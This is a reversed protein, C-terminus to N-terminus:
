GTDGGAVVPLVPSDTTAARADRLATQIETAPKPVEDKAILGKRFKEHKLVQEAREMVIDAVRAALKVRTGADYQLKVGEHAFDVTAPLIITKKRDKNAETWWAPGAMQQRKVHEALRMSARKTAAEREEPSIRNANDALEALIKRQEALDKQLNQVLELLERETETPM